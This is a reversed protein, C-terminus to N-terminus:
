FTTMSMQKHLFSYTCGEFGLINIIQDKVFFFFNALAEETAVLM